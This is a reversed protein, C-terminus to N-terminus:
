DDGETTENRQKIEGTGMELISKMSRGDSVRRRTEDSRGTM